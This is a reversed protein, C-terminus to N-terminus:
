LRQSAEETKHKCQKLMCVHLSFRSSMQNQLCWWNGHPFLSFQHIKESQQVLHNIICKMVCVHINKAENGPGSGSCMNKNCAVKSSLSKHCFIDSVILANTRECTWQHNNALICEKLQKCYVLPHSLIVNTYVSYSTKHHCPLTRLMCRYSTERHLFPVSM